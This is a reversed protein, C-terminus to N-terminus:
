RKEKQLMVLSLYALARYILVMSILILVNELLNVDDFGLSKLVVEGTPEPCTPSPECMVMGTFENSVLNQYGYRFFSIYYLWIYYDPINNANVYFGAFLFFLVITLPAIIQAVAANPSAAGILAYLSTATATFIILTILFIFFKAADPQLGMMWYAITGMISPFIIAVPLEILNQAIFFVSVQYVGAARERSFLERGLIFNNLSSMQGFASSTIMFFLAGLRDQVEQDTQPMQFYISGVLLGMFVNQFVQVRTVLPNRLLNSAARGTVHWCQRPWSTAFSGRRLGGEPVVEVDAFEEGLQQIQARKAACEPSQQYLLPLPQPALTGRADLPDNKEARLVLDVIHDAPNGRTPCVTSTIRAFFPLADAAPGAYVVEGLSLVVLQDFLDFINSRPQHITCIVTRNQNKAIRSLAELTALSNFADLGTSPEDAFVL